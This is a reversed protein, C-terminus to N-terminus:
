IGHQLEVTQHKLLYADVFPFLVRHEVNDLLQYHGVLLARRWSSNPVGDIVDFAFTPLDFFCVDYLVL